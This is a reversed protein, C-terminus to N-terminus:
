ETATAYTPWTGGPAYSRFKPLAAGFEGEKAPVCFRMAYAAFKEHHCIKWPPSKKLFLSKGIIGPVFSTEEM